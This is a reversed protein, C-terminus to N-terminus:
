RIRAAFPSFLGATPRAASPLEPREPTALLMVGRGDMLTAWFLIQGRDNLIGGNVLFNTVSYITGIGPIVAGTGVIRHYEHQSYVYFASEGNELSTNFSVDGRNNLSYNGVVRAPNVTVIKGGDPMVDSSLAIPTSIGRSHLYIGRAARVGPPPTFEGIFVLDGRNNLVPGWAYSYRDAQTLFRQLAYTTCFIFTPGESDNQLFLSWVAM